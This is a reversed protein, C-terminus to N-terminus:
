DKKRYKIEKGCFNCYKVTRLIQEGCYPCFMQQEKKIKEEFKVFVEDMESISPFMKSQTGATEPHIEVMRDFYEVMLRMQKKVDRILQIDEASYEEKKRALREIEKTIKEFEDHLGGVTDFYKDVVEVEREFLKSIDPYKSFEVMIRLLNMASYPNLTILEVAIDMKGSLSETELKGWLEAEKKKNTTDRGYCLEPYEDVLVQVLSKFIELINDDIIDVVDWVGEGITRKEKNSIMSSTLNGVGNFVSHMAGGVANMAGATVAGKIAGGVGFGGGEWRGRCEKRLKRYEKELRQRENIDDYSKRLAEIANIAKKGNEEYTEILEADVEVELLEMENFYMYLALDLYTQCEEAAKVMSNNQSKDIKDIEEHFDYLIKRYTDSLFDYYFYKSGFHVKRGFLTLDVAFKEDLASLVRETIMRERHEYIGSYVEYGDYFLELEEDNFGLSKIQEEIDEPVELETVCEANCDNKELFEEAKCIVGVYEDYVTETSVSKLPSITDIIERKKEGSVAYEELIMRFLARKEEVENKVIYNELIKRTEESEIGFSKCYNALETIQEEELLIENTEEFLNAIYRDIKKLLDTVKAFLVDVDCPELDYFNAKKYFQEVLPETHKEYFINVINKRIYCEYEKGSDKESNLTQVDKTVVQAQISINNSILKAGCNFCFKAGEPVKTGCESCFM